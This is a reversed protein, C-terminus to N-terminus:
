VYRKLTLVFECGGGIADTVEINGGIDLLIKRSISLGLGLGVGAEKTTFFPDFIVAKDAASIGCGNDTMTLILSEGKLAASIKLHPQTQEAMADLANGILNVLVQELRIPDGSASPIDTFGLREIRCQQQEIRPLYLELSSTVVSDLDVAIVEDSPRRSFVKLHNIIKAMKDALNEIKQLLPLSEEARSREIMRSSNHANYRIASLPQNLEHAIGASLQGLSALKASQILEQSTARLELETRKHQTIEARLDKTRNEITQELNQQIEYRETTDVLTFLLKTRYRQHYERVALDLHFQSGDQRRGLTEIIPPLAAVNTILQLPQQQAILSHIDAGILEQYQYKFLLRANPNVFEIIGQSDTSILGVLANSIVSQANADEVDKATNRFILLALAMQSIEDKGKTDIPTDLNGEAIASMSSQLRNLRALLSRGVYLWGVLLAMLLGSLAMGIILNRGQGVASHARAAAGQAAQNAELVQASIIVKLQSFLTKNEDLLTQNASILLLEQKRLQPISQEGRAFFMIQQVSQRLTLASTNDQIQNLANFLRDEVEGLYLLTANIETADTQSSARVVLGVALNSDANLQMLSERIRLVQQLENARHLGNGSNNNLDDISDQTNYRSDELIPSIEDLFSAHTWRLSESLNRSNRQLEFKNSVNTNLSQLNGQIKPLVVSLQQQVKTALIQKNHATDLLQTLESLQQDLAEWVAEQEWSSRASILKPATGSIDTALETFHSATNMLPLHRTGLSEVRESIDVMALWAAIATMLTVVMIAGLALSLKLGIRSIRFAKKNSTLPVSM